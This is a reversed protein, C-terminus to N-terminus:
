VPDPVCGRGLQYTNLRGVLSVSGPLPGGGIDLLFTGTAGADRRSRSAALSAPRAPVAVSVKLSSLPEIRSPRKAKQQVAPNSTTSWIISSSIVPRIPGFPRWSGAPGHEASAGHRDAARSRRMGATALDVEVGVLGEGRRVQHGLDSDLAHQRSHGGPAVPEDGLREAVLELREGFAVRTRREGPAKTEAVEARSASNNLPSRDPRSKATRIISPTTKVPHQQTTARTTVVSPVL